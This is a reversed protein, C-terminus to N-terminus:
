CASTKRSLKAETTLNEQAADALGEGLRVAAGDTKKSAGISKPAAVEKTARAPDV